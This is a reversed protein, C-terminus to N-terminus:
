KKVGSHTVASHRVMHLKIITKKDMYYVVHSREATSLSEASYNALMSPGSQPRKTDGCWCVRECKMMIAYFFMRANECEQM